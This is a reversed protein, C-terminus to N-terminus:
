RVAKSGCVLGACNQSFVFSFYRFVSAKMSSHDLRFNKRVESAPLAIALALL